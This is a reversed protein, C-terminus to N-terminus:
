FRDVAFSSLEEGGRGREHLRRHYELGSGLSVEAVGGLSTSDLGPRGRGGADDAQGPDTSNVVAVDPRLRRLAGEPENWPTPPGASSNQPCVTARAMGM